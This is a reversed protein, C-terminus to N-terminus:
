PGPPLAAGLPRRARPSRKRGRWRRGRQEGAGSRPPAPPFPAPPRAAAGLEGAARRRGTGKRWLQQRAARSPRLARDPLQYTTTGKRRREARADVSSDCLSPAPRWARFGPLSSPPGAHRQCCPPRAPRATTPPPPPPLCRSLYAASPAPESGEKGQGGAEGNGRAGEREWSKVDRKM